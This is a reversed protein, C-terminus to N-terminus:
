GRYIFTVGEGNETSNIYINTMIMASIPCCNGAQLVFGASLDNPVAPGGVIIYGNNTPKAQINIEHAFGVTTSLQVPTGAVAVTQGGHFLQDTTGDRGQMYVPTTM